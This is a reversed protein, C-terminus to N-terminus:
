FYEVRHSRNTPDISNYTEKAFSGLFLPSIRCFFGIIKRIDIVYCTVGKFLVGFPPSSGYSAKLQLDNEEFSGSIIHSKQPFHGIFILCGIPRRWGTIIDVANKKSKKSFDGFGSGFSTPFHCNPPPSVLFGGLFWFTVYIM